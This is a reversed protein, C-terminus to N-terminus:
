KLHRSLLPYREFLVQMGNAIVSASGKDLPVAAWSEDTLGYEVERGGTYWIRLSTLPGYEEVQQREVKGFLSAWHTDELYRQPNRSLVVLDIDSDLRAANRAYSGVLGIAQIDAQAAAWALFQDLFTQIHDITLM